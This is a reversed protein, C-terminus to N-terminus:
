RGVPRRPSRRRPRRGHGRTARRDLVPPALHFSFRAVHPEWRQFAALDPLTVLANMPSLEDVLKSWQHASQEELDDALDNRWGFGSMRPQLGIV